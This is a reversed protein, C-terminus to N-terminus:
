FFQEHHSNFLLSSHFGTLLQKNRGRGEVPRLKEDFTMSLKKANKLM